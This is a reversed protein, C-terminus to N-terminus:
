WNAGNMVFYGESQKRRDFVQETPLQCVEAGRKMSYGCMPYEIESDAYSDLMVDNQRHGAECELDVRIVM